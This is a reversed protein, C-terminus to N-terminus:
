VEIVTTKIGIYCHCYNCKPFWRSGRLVMKISTSKQGRKCDCKYLAIVTKGERPTQNLM